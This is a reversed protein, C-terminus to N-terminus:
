EASSADKTSCQKKVRWSKIKLGAFCIVSVGFIGAFTCFLSTYRWEGLDRVFNADYIFVTIDGNSEFNFGSVVQNTLRFFSAYLVGNDYVDEKYYRVLAGQETEIEVSVSLPYYYYSDSVDDFIASYEYYYTVANQEDREAQTVRSTKDNIEIVEYDEMHSNYARNEKPSLEKGDQMFAVFTEADTFRETGYTERFPISCYIVAVVAMLFAGIVMTLNGWYSWYEPDSKDLSQEDETYFEWDPKEPGEASFVKSREKALIVACESCAIIVCGAYVFGLAINNLPLDWCIHLACSLIQVLYFLVNSLHRNFFNYAWGIAATWLTHTCVASLGRSIGVTILTNLNMAPLENSMVFIYGMDEVISYGCGVAAGFVFGALPSKKRSLVITLVTIIAKPLEEFFGTYVAKLWANPAPFLNFLAQSIANAATGGVLMAFCVSIFSLDREPYLEYLFLLMPLNVCLSALVNITPAFLENSTFRIILLFVANLIFILAFLRIYAWPYQRNAGGDNKRIGRTLLESYEGGTHRRFTQRFFYSIKNNKTTAM